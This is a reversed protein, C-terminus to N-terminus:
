LQVQKRYISAALHLLLTDIGVIDDKSGAVYTHIYRRHIYTTHVPIFYTYPVHVRHIIYTTCTHIYSHIYTHHMYTRAVKTKRSLESM